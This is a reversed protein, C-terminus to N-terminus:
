QGRNLSFGPGLSSHQIASAAGQHRTSRLPCLGAAGHLACPSGECPGGRSLSSERGLACPKVPASTRKGTRQLGLAAQEQASGKGMARGGLEHQFVSGVDLVSGSRSGEQGRDAGRRTLARNEALSLCRTAPGQGWHMRPFSSRSGEWFRVQAWPNPLPRAPAWPLEEGRWGRGFM